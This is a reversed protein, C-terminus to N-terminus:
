VLKLPNTLFSLNPSHSLTLSDSGILKFTRKQGYAAILNALKQAQHIAAKHHFATIRSDM